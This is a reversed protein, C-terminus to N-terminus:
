QISEQHCHFLSYKTNDKVIANKPNQGGGKKCSRQSVQHTQLDPVVVAPDSLHLRPIEAVNNQVIELSSFLEAEEGVAPQSNVPVVEGGLDLNWRGRHVRGGWFSEEHLGAKEVHEAVVVNEPADERTGDPAPERSNM